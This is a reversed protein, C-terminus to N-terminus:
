DQGLGIFCTTELQWNKQTHKIISEIKVYSAFTSQQFVRGERRFFVRLKYRWSGQSSSPIAGEEGREKGRVGEQRKPPM